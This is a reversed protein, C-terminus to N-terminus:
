NQSIDSPPWVPAFREHRDKEALNLWHLFSSYVVAPRKDRTSATRRIAQLVDGSRHEAFLKEWTEPDLDFPHIQAWREIALEIASEISGAPM